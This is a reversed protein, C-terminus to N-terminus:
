APAPSESPFCSATRRLLSQSREGAPTPRVGRSAAHPDSSAAGVSAGKTQAGGGTTVLPTLRATFRASRLDNCPGGRSVRVNERVWDEYGERTVRLDYVGPREFGAALVPPTGAAGTTSESYDGDVIVLTAGVAAPAGTAADLIEVNVAFSGVDACACSGLSLAAVLVLPVRLARAIM